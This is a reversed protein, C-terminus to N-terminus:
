RIEILRIYTHRTDSSPYSFRLNIEITPGPALPPPPPSSVFRFTGPLGGGGRGEKTLDHSTLWGDMWGLGAWGLRDTPRDTSRDTTWGALPLDTHRDEPRRLRDVLVWNLTDFDSFWTYAHICPHM